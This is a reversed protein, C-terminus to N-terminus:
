RFNVKLDRPIDALQADTPCTTGSAVAIGTYDKKELDMDYYYYGSIGDFTKWKLRVKRQPQVIYAALRDNLIIIFNDYDDKILKRKGTVVKGSSSIVKYEEDSVKVIGYRTDEWPIYKLGNKYFAGKYLKLENKNGFAVGNSRFNFEFTGDELEINVDGTLMKGENTDEKESFYRIDLLDSGYLRGGETIPYIFDEKRLDEAKYEAGFYAIGDTLVFGKRLRGFGDFSYRDDGINAIKNKVISGDEGVYFWHEKGDYYDAESYALPTLERIWRGKLLNGEIKDYVKIRDSITPNSAQHTDIETRNKQFGLVMIGHEDFSYENGNLSLKKSHNEAAYIKSCKNDFYMWLGELDDYRTAIVSSEGLDYSSAADYNFNYWENQYLVGNEKARYYGETLVDSSSELYEGDKTIWCDVFIHGNEDFAYKKNEITKIFNTNRKIYASGDESFYFLGPDVNSGSVIMEPTIEVFRNTVRAGNEGVYYICGNYEFAKNYVVYGDEGLYFKMGDSEKWTNALRYGDNNLFAMRGNDNYWGTLAFSSFSITAIFFSLCFLLFNQKSWFMREM